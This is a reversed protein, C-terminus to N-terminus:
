ILKKLLELFEARDPHASLDMTELTEVIGAISAGNQYESGHLIQTTQILLTMFLLTDDPSQALNAKGITYENLRSAEEGLPKYRVALKMWPAETSRAGDTLTLEYFVTVTHGAGVDGADKSDDEFDERNLLRNEYGILRYSAVCTPDFTLQLKVDKAVTYLTGLLDTGMVKEVESKGDIYYYVGNGNDALTEMKADRYNRM